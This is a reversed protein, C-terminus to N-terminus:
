RGAARAARRDGLEAEAVRDPEPRAATVERDVHGAAQAAQHDVQAVHREAQGVPGVQAALQELRPLGRDDAPAVRSRWGVDAEDRGAPEDRRRDVREERECRAVPREHRGAIRDHDPRRDGLPQAVRPEVLTSIGSPPRPRARTPAPGALRPTAVSRPGPPSYTKSHCPRQRTAVPSMASGSSDGNAPMTRSTRGPIPIVIRAAPRPMRPITASPPGVRPRSWAPASPSSREPPRSTPDAPVIRTTPERTSASVSVRARAIPTQPM